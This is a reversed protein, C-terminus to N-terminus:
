RATASSTTAATIFVSSSSIARLPQKAHTNPHPKSNLREGGTAIEARLGAAEAAQHMMFVWIM